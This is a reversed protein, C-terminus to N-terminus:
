LKQNFLIEAPCFNTTSHLTSCYHLLFNYLKIKPSKGEATAIHTLQCLQMVFNKKNGFDKKQQM